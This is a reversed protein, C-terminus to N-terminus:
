DGRGALADTGRALCHLARSRADGAGGYCAKNPIMEAHLFRQLRVIKEFGAKKGLLALQILGTQAPHASDRINALAALAEDRVDGSQPMQLFSEGPSPLTKKFLDLADDDAAWFLSELREM